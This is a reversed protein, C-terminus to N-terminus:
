YYVITQQVYLSEHYVNAAYRERIWKKIDKVRNTKVILCQHWDGDTQIRIDLVDEPFDKKIDYSFSVRDQKTSEGTDFKVQILSWGIAQVTNQTLNEGGM